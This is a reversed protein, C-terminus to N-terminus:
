MVAALLLSSANSWTKNYPGGPSPFVVIAITMALSIPTFIRVVLPGAISFAPSKTASKFSNSAPSIRKISSIWLIGRM